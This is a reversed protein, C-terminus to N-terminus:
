IDKVTIIANPGASDLRMGYAFLVKLSESSGKATPVVSGYLKNFGKEKAIVAVQDAMQSAIDSKRYDPKVYIDEIYAGDQLFFYTCFAVDSEIVHKIGREKCYEAYLSMLPELRM